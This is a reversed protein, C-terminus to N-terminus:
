GGTSGGGTTAGGGGTTGGGTTGGGTTGGTSGGGTTFYNTQSGKELPSSGSDLGRGGVGYKLFTLFTTHECTQDADM